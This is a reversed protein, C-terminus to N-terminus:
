VSGSLIMIITSGTTTRGSRRSHSAAFASISAIMAGTSASGAAAALAALARDRCSAEVGRAGLRLRPAVREDVPEAGQADEIGGAARAIEEIERQLRDLVDFIAGDEFALREAEAHDHRADPRFDQVADLDVREGGFERARRDPDAVDLPAHAVGDRVM